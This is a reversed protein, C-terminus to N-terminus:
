SMGKFFRKWRLTSPDCVFPATPLTRDCSLWIFLPRGVAYAIPVMGWSRSDSSQDRNDGMVFFHGEPVVVKAFTSDSKAAQRYRVFHGSRSESFEGIESFYDFEDEDKQGSYVKEAVPEQEIKISNVYVEGAKVEVSEGAIAVVRKIYFVEKNQPFKFVVIQGKAPRSWQALWAESFPLHVGFALKNVLIHDHILLTPIMSGSPIVFPEFLLWRVLLIGAIPTFFTM